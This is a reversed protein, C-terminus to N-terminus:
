LFLGNQLEAEEEDESEPNQRWEPDSDEDEREKLKKKVIKRKKENVNSVTNQPNSLDYITKSQKPAKKVVVNSEREEKPYTIIIDESETGSDSQWDEM